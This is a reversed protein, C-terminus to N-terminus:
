KGAQKALYEEMIQDIPKSVNTPTYGKSDLRSSLQPQMGAQIAATDDMTTGTLSPQYAPSSPTYNYNSPHGPSKRPDSFSMQSDDLYNQTAVADAQRQAERAREERMREINVMNPDIANNGGGGGASPNGTPLTTTNNGVSTDFFSQYKNYAAPDYAQTDLLAQDYLSNSDYGFSGDAYKSPQILGGMADTPANFGFARAADNNNQFAAVQNPNFAAVEPGRYPMFPMRQLDEARQLNRQVPQQLWDPLTTETTESGSKGGGSSM